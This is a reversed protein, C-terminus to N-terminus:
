KSPWCIPEAQPIVRRTITNNEQSGCDEVARASDRQPDQFFRKQPSGVLTARGIVRRAAGPRICPANSYSEKHIVDTIVFVLLAVRRRTSGQFHCRLVWCDVLVVLLQVM